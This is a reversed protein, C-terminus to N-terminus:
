TLRESVETAIREKLGDIPISEIVPAFSAMIVLQKAEKETLGRSMLYFLKNADVQGASAAHEGQVDDEDCMLAPISDARVREDLLIVYEQEGGQARKAGKKFFLNGRFVKRAEDLLAGKVLVDSLSRRGNHYINYGLDLKSKGDGLYVSDVKAQANEDELYTSYDTVVVGSGLDISSFTVNADREVVSLGSSVHTSEKGFNQIKVVQVQANKEAVINILGNHYGGDSTDTYDIVVTVKSDHGVHVLHHDLILPNENSLELQIVVPEGVTTNPRVEVVSGTNSFAEVLQRHKESPGYKLNLRYSQYSGKYQLLPKVSLGEEQHWLVKQNNYPQYPPVETNKIKIRNWTPYSLAQYTELRSRRYDGSSGEIKNKSLIEELLELNYM